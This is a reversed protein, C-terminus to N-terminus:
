FSEISAISDGGFRIRLGQLEISGGDRKVIWDPHSTAAWQTLAEPSSLGRSETVLAILIKVSQKEQVLASAQADLDIAANYATYIWWANSLVLLAGLSYAVIPKM